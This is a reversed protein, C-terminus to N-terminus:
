QCTNCCKHQEDAAEMCSLCEGPEPAKEAAAQRGIADLSIKDLGGHVNVQNDGASDVTDVSIEDCRLHPFTVNLGIPLKQNIRTDVSISDAVEVNCFENLEIWFLLALIFSTVMTVAGGAQSKQVYDDHVKTYVDFRKLTELAKMAKSDGDDGASAVNRRRIGSSSSM